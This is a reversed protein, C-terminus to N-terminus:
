QLLCFVASFQKPPTEFEAEEYNALTKTSQNQPVKESFSIIKDTTKQLYAIVRVRLAITQESINVCSSASLKKCHRPQLQGPDQFANDARYSFFVSSTTKSITTILICFVNLSHDDGM